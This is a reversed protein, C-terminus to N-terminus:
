KILHIWVSVFWVVHYATYIKKYYVLLNIFNIKSLSERSCFSLCLFKLRFRKWCKKLIVLMNSNVILLLGLYKVCETQHLTKSSLTVVLSINSYIILQTESSNFYPKNEAFWSAIQHLEDHLAYNNLSNTEHLLIADSAFFIARIYNSTVYLYIM